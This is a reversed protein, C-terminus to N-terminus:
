AGIKDLVAHRFWAPPLESKIEIERGETIEAIWQLQDSSNDFVHARRTAKVARLLLGLSREHRQRIKLEPVDHGGRRVREAVRLV